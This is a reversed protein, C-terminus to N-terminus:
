AGSRGAEGDSHAAQPRPSPAGQGVGAETDELAPTGQAGSVTNTGKISGKHTHTGPALGGTLTFSAPRDEASSPSPHPDTRLAQPSLACAQTKGSRGSAHGRPRM